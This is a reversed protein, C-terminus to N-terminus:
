TTSSIEKKVRQKRAEDLAERSLTALANLKVLGDLGEGTAGKMLFGIAMEFDKLDSEYRDLQDKSWSANPTGAKDLKEASSKLASLAAREKAEQDISSTGALKESRAKVLISRNKAIIERLTTLSWKGTIYVGDKGDFSEVRNTDSEIAKLLSEYKDLDSDSWTASPTGMADLAAADRKLDALAQDASDKTAQAKAEPSSSSPACGAALTLSVSALLLLAISKVPRM